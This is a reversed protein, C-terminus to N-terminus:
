RDSGKARNGRGAGAGKEPNMSPGEGQIEVRVGDPAYPLATLSIREGAALGSGVAVSAGDRWAVTVTRRELRSDPTIVLVRDGPGVAHRPLVTVDELTRGQIVAEVFRGDLLGSDPREGGGPAEIRAVLVTQRTRADVAAEVRVVQGTWERHAAGEGATLTVRPAADAAGDGDELGSLDLFAASRDTVPLRVEWDALAYIEGLVAGKAVFQGLDSKKDVVRGAFPAVIRTRELDLLAADLQAQRLSREAELNRQQAPVLALSNQLTRHTARRVLYERESQELASESVAGEKHLRTLREFQRRSLERQQTEIALSADLNARSVELEALRARVAGLGAELNAVQLRYSEPDIRALLAGAAFSAGPVFGPSVEILRGAAESTLASRIRPTMVGQSRVRVPFAGPRVTLAQVSLVTPRPPTRKPEPGTKLLVVGVVGSLALVVISLFFRRRAVSM